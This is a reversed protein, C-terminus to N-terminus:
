KLSRLMQYCFYQSHAESLPQESAIIHELDSEYLNCVTYVDSFSTAMSANSTPPAVMVDLLKICSGTGGLHQGVRVRSGSFLNERQSPAPFVFDREAPARPKSVLCCGCFYPARAVVRAQLLKIERAVRKADEVSAVCNTMKKIAVKNGTVTDVSSVVFGYSGDGLPSLDTYRTEIHFEERGGLLKHYAPPMASSPAKACASIAAGGGAHRTLGDATRAQFTPFVGSDRPSLLLLKWNPLQYM